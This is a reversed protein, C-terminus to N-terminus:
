ADEYIIFPQIEQRAVTRTEIFREFNEEMEGRQRLLSRVLRDLARKLWAFRPGSGHQHESPCALLFRAPVISADVFQCSDQKARIPLSLPTPCGRSCACLVM